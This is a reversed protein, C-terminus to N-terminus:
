LAKRSFTIGDPSVTYPYGQRSLHLATWYGVRTEDRVCCRVAIGCDFLAGTIAGTAKGTLWALM